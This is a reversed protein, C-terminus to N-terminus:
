KLMIRITNAAKGEVSVEVNVEGRGLLSKPLRVNIQDLGQFQGQKDAYDVVADLGGIKVKVQALEARHRIGTGYLVLVVADTGVDIPVPVIKNQGVDFRAVREIVQSQDSKVYVVDAAAWGKGSADAAFM